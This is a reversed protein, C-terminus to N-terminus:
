TVTYKFGATNVTAVTWDGASAPQEEAIDHIITASAPMTHQKVPTLDTSNNSIQTRANVLVGDGLGQFWACVGKVPSNSPMTGDLNSYGCGFGSPDTTSLTYDSDSPPVEDIVAFNDSGTSPVFGGNTFGAIDSDPRVAPVILNWTQTDIYDGTSTTSGDTYDISDDSTIAIHDVYSSGTLHNGSWTFSVTESTGQNYVLSSHWATAATGNVYLRAGVRRNNGDDKVTWVVAIRVWTADPVSLTTTERWANNIYLDLTNDTNWEVHAIDRGAGVDNIELLIRRNASYNVSVWVGADHYHSFIVRGGNGNAGDGCLNPLNVTGSLIPGNYSTHNTVTFKMSRSGAYPASKGAPQHSQTTSNTEVTGRTQSFSWPPTAAQWQALTAGLEWGNMYVLHASM